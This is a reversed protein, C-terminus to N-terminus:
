VHIPVSQQVFDVNRIENYITAVIYYLFQKCFKANAILGYGIEYLTMYQWMDIKNIFWYVPLSYFEVQYRALTGPLDLASIYRDHLGSRPNSDRQHSINENQIQQERGPGFLEASGICIFHLM